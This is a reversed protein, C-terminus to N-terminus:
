LPLTLGRIPAVASQYIRPRVLSYRRPPTSKTRHTPFEAVRPFCGRKACIVTFLSPPTPENSCYNNPRHGFHFVQKTLCLLSGTLHDYLPHQQLLGLRNRGVTPPRDFFFPPIGMTNVVNPSAASSCYSTEVIDGAVYARGRIQRKAASTMSNGLGQCFPTALQRGSFMEGYQRPQDLILPTPCQAVLSYPVRTPSSREHRASQAPLFQDNDRLPYRVSGAPRSM